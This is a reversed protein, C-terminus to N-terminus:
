IDINRAHFLKDLKNTHLTRHINSVCPSGISDGDADTVDKAPLIASVAAGDGTVESLNYPLPQPLTFSTKLVVPRDNTNLVNAHIVIEQEEGVYTGLNTDYIGLSLVVKASGYNSPFPLFCFQSQTKLESPDTCLCKRNLVSTSM